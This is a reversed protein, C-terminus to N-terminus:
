NGREKSFRDSLLKICLLCGYCFMGIGGYFSLTHVQQTGQIISTLGSSSLLGGVGLFMLTLFWYFGLNEKRNAAGIYANKWTIVFLFYGGSVLMPLVISLKEQELVFGFCAAGYLLAFVAAMLVFAQFGTKQVITKQYEDQLDLMM